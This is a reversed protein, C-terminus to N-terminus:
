KKLINANHWLQYEAKIEALKERKTQLLIENKWAKAYGVAVLVIMLVLVVIFLIWYIFAPYPWAARVVLMSAIVFNVILVDLWISIKPKENKLAVPAWALLDSSAKFYEAQYAKDDLDWLLKNHAHIVPYTHIEEELGVHPADGANREFVEKLRWLAFLGNLLYLAVGAIVFGLYNIQKDTSTVIILPIIAAGFTLSLEGLKQLFDKYKEINGLQLASRQGRAESMTRQLEDRKEALGQKVEKEEDSTMILKNYGLKTIKTVSSKYQTDLHAM